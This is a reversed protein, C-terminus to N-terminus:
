IQGEDRQDRSEFSGKLIVETEEVEEQYLDGGGAFAVENKLSGGYRDDFDTNPQLESIVAEQGPKM